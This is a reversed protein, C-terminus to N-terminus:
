IKGSPYIDEGFLGLIIEYYKEKKKDYLWLPCDDSNLKKEWGSGKVYQITPM